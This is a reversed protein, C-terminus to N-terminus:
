RMRKEMWEAATVLIDRKPPENYVEHYLAEYMIFDKDQSSVAEFFRRAADPACARDDGGHQFLVPATFEKARANLDEMARFFERAFGVSIVKHVLPDKIYDDVVKPDHCITQPDLETSPITLRPVVAALLMGIKFKVPNIKAASRIPIGSLVLGKFGMGNELSYRALILSGNSHALGFLPLGNIKSEVIGRFFHLDELYIDFKDIHGRKGVSMGHGRNEMMFFSFGRENFFSAMHSYRGIHEAYGHVALVAAKPNDPASELFRFKEGGRNQFYSEQKM